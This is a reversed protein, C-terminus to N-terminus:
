HESRSELKTRAASQMERTVPYGRMIAIAVLKFVVPVASYLLALAILGTDTRGADPEFGAAGLVPFALGVALALAAKTALGWLAFYTATRQEGSELTDLDVVDAQMSPPLSLDAGLCLGSLAVIVWFAATDGQGLFPVFIFVGCAILMAVTWADKKGTRHALALWGPIGAIGCLFYVFLMPGYSEPSGLRYSVFFLFLTAPLANAIGNVLYACLLRLFAHNVTLLRLGERFSTRRTTLEQPEPAMLVAIAIAVPLLILVMLAIAFLSDAKATYGFAPLVAPLASTMLTGAVTLGERVGAIRSREDYDGTLEAGWAGYPVIIGTWALSLALSWFLLYGAGAGPPPAFLMYAALAALPAAAVLWIKRRGLRTSLRDSAYGVLPDSVADFARTLLLVAGVTAIPIGIERTYFAPLFIYVPLTLVALPLAPAGYSLLM